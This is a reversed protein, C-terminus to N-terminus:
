GGGNSRILSGSGFLRVLKNGHRNTPYLRDLSESSLIAWNELFVRYLPNDFCHQNLIVGQLSVSGEIALYPLTLEGNSNQVAGTVHWGSKMQVIGNKDRKEVPSAKRFYYPIRKAINKAEGTYCPTHHGNEDNFERFIFRYVGAHSFEQILRKPKVREIIWNRIEDASLLERWLFKGRAHVQTTM